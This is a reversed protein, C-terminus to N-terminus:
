PGNLGVVQMTGQRLVVAPFAVVFAFGPWPSLPSRVTAFFFHVAPPHILFRSRQTRVNKTPHLGRM